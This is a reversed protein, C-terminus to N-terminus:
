AFRSLLFVSVLALGIGVWEYISIQEHFLVAGIGVSLLITIVAYMVGTVSFEMLKYMYYFGFAVVAYIVVGAAINLFHRSGESTTANKLFIDGVIASATVIFVIVINYIWNM